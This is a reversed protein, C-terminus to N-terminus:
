NALKRFLEDRCHLASALVDDQDMTTLRGGDMVIRGDIIVTDVPIMSSSLALIFGLDDKLSLHTIDRVERIVIDARKGVTLSGLKDGLGANSAADITQMYFPDSDALREGVLASLYLSLVGAIGFPHCMITDVGLSVSIGQKYLSPFWCKDPPTIARHLANNPCWALGPKASLILEVDEDTLVNMHALTTGPGLAGLRHLRVAGADGYRRREADVFVPQFSQHQYFVVDHDRALAAAEAILDDTGTGEGYLCVYGQVLADNDHNRKLERKCQDIVRKTDVRAKSVLMDNIMNPWIEAFTSTDDWGFPASVLGRMGCRTLTDAFADTEFVTGAEMFTTYGRQLLTCVAAATFAATTEDDTAAKFKTYNFKIESEEELAFPGAHYPMGTMHLHGDILGPHVLAGHADISRVADFDALVEREPGAALIVGDGVAVAGPRFHPRSRDGTFLDCNAILLDASRKRHTM